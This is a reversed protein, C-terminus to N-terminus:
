NHRDITKFIGRRQLNKNMSIVGNVGRYRKRFTELKGVIQPGVQVVVDAGLQCGVENDDVVEALLRPEDLEVSVIDAGRDDPGLVQEGIVSSSCRAKSVKQQRKFLTTRASGPQPIFSLGTKLLM